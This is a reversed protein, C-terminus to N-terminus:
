HYFGFELSAERWSTFSTFNEIGNGKGYKKTKLSALASLM